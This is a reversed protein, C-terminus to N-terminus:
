HKTPEMTTTLSSDIMPSPLGSCTPGPDTSPAQLATLIHYTAHHHPPPAWGPYGVACARQYVARWDCFRMQIWAEWEVCSIASISGSVSGRSLSALEVAAAEAALLRACVGCSAAGCCACLPSPLRARAPPLPPLPLEKPGPKGCSGGTAVRGRVGVAASVSPAWAALSVGCCHTSSRAPPIMLLSSMSSPVSTSSESAMSRKQSGMEGAAAPTPAGVTPPPLALTLTLRVPLKRTPGAPPLLAASALPGPLPPPPPGDSLVLLLM